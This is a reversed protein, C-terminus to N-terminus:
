YPTFENVTLSYGSANANTCDLVELCASFNYPAVPTYITLGPTVPTTTVPLTIVWIAVESPFAGGGNGLFTPVLYGYVESSVLGSFNQNYTWYQRGNPAYPASPAIYFSSSGNISNNNQYQNCPLGLTTIDGQTWANPFMDIDYSMQGWFYNPNTIGPPVINASCNFTYTVRLKITEIVTWPNPPFPGDGASRLSIQFAKNAITDGVLTSNIIGTGSISVKGNNNYWNQFGTTTFPLAVSGPNGLFIVQQETTPQTFNNTGTWVNNSSLLSAPSSGNSIASIAGNSNVTINTNTYSGALAGAGTYASTQQTNDHYKIFTTGFLDLISNVVTIPNPGDFVVPTQNFNVHTGGSGDGFDITPCNFFTVTNNNFEVTDGTFQTDDCGIILEPGQFTVPCEIVIDASPKFIVTDSFEAPGDIVTSGFNVEIGGNFVILGTATDGAKKIYPEDPPEGGAENYINAIEDM